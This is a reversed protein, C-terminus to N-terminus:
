DNNTCFVLIRIDLKTIMDYGFAHISSDQPTPTEEEAAFIWDCRRYTSYVDFM